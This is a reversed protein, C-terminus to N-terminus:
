SRTSGLQPGYGVVLYPMFGRLPEGAAACDFCGYSIGIRSSQGALYLAWAAHGHAPLFLCHDETLPGDVREAWDEGLIALNSAVLMVARRPETHGPCGNSLGLSKAITWMATAVSSYGVVSGRVRAGLVLFPERSLIPREVGLYLSTDAAKHEPNRLAQWSYDPPQQVPAAWNPGMNPTGRISGDPFVPVNAIFKDLCSIGIGDRSPAMSVLLSPLVAMSGNRFGLIFSRQTEEMNVMRPEVASHVTGVIIAAEPFEIGSGLHKDLFGCVEDLWTSSGLHMQTVHQSPRFSASLLEAISIVISATIMRFHIIHIADEAGLHDLIKFKHKEVSHLFPAASISDYCAAFTDASLPFYMSALRVSRPKPPDRPPTKRFEATLLQKPSTPADWECALVQGVLEQVADFATQASEAFLSTRAGLANILMSGVTKDCYYLKLNAAGAAVSRPIRINTTQPFDTESVGGLVLVIGRIPQPPSNQGAWSVIPGIRYGVAKLYAAVRVALSSRTFYPDQSSKGENTLWDLLGGVLSLEFNQLRPLGPGSYSPSYQWRKAPEPLNAAAADFIGRLGRAEGENLIVAINDLLLQYLSEVLGPVRNRDQIYHEVMFKIFLDVAIEGGCEHALACIALGIVQTVSDGGFSRQGDDGEFFVLGAGTLIHCRSPALALNSSILRLEKFPDKRITAKLGSILRQIGALGGSWGWASQEAHLTTIVDSTAVQVQELSGCSARFM